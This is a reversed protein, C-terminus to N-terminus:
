FEVGFAQLTDFIQGEAIGNVVIIPNGEADFDKSISAGLSSLQGALENFSGTFGHSRLWATNLPVTKVEERM